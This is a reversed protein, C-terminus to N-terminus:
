HTHLHLGANPDDCTATDAAAHHLQGGMSPLLLLALAPVLWMPVMTM